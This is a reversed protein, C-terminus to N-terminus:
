NEQANEEEVESVYSEESLESGIDSDEDTYEEDYEEEGEDDEEDEEETENSPVYDEEEEEEEDEEEGDDIDIEIDEDDGEVVFGDEKSYGEKTLFEAPIEEDESEEEEQDLDDFGGFMKEYIKGWELKTLNEVTLATIEEEKHKLVIINGFYLEKDIPPPLEYKNETNARGSNKAYVSIYIKKGEFTLEFTNVRGFNNANRFNCKKYLNEEQFNKVLTEKVRANKDVLIVKVM